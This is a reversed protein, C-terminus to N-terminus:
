MKEASEKSNRQFTEEFNGSRVSGGKLNFALNIIARMKSGSLLGSDKKEVEKNEDLLFDVM